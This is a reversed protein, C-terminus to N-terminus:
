SAAARVWRWRVMWQKQTSATQAPLDEFRIPGPGAFAELGSDLNVDLASADDLDAGVGSMWVHPQAVPCEQRSHDGTM